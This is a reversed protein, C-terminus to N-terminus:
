CSGRRVCQMIGGLELVTVEGRLISVARKESMNAGVLWHVRRRFGSSSVMM